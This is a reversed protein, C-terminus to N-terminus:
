GELYYAERQPSTDRRPVYPLPARDDLFKPPIPFQESILSSQHAEVETSHAPQQQLLEAADAVLRAARRRSSIKLVSKEDARVV